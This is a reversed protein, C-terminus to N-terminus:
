EVEDDLEHSLGQLRTIVGSHTPASTFVTGVFLPTGRLIHRIVTCSGSMEICFGSHRPEEGTQEASSSLPSAFFAEGTTPNIFDAWYGATWLAFCMEKAGSVFQSLLQERDPEAEKCRGSRPSVTVVTISTNPVTPFLLELDKRLLEPCSSISCDAYTQNFYQEAKHVRKSIPGLKGQFEHVFQALIFQQREASCPATLVDPVTKDVPSKKEEVGDLHSDFGVNGPLQFRQDQPGFPGMNEDPWVTRPGSDTHSVTIYPEDPNAASFTRGRGVKLVALMQRGLTQCRVLRGGGCLVTSPM